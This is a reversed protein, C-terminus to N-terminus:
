LGSVWDAIDVDLNKFGGCYDVLSQLAELHGRWSKINGRVAEYKCVSAVALIIEEVLTMNSSSLMDQKPLKTLANRVGSLTRGHYTIEANRLGLQDSSSANAMHSASMTCIADQVLSSYFARPLLVEQLPNHSTELNSMLRSGREAHYQLYYLETSSVLGSPSRILEYGSTEKSAPVNTHHQIDLAHMSVDVKSELDQHSVSTPKRRSGLPKKQFLKTSQEMPTKWLTAYGECARGLRICNGCRNESTLSLNGAIFEQSYRPKKEDCKKRRKKCTLCGSRSWTGLHRTVANKSSLSQDISRDEYLTSRGEM